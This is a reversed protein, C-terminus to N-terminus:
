ESAEVIVDAQANEIQTTARRLKEAFSIQRREIEHFAYERRIEAAVISENMREITDLFEAYTRAKVDEMTLGAIKLLENVKAIAVPERLSWCDVLEGSGDDPMLQNMVAELGHHTNSNLFSAKIRRLRQVEWIYYVADGILIEEVLDKPKVANFVAESLAHYATEDEGELLAPPGLLARSLSADIKPPRLANEM